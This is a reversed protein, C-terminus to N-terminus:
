QGGGVARGINFHSQGLTAAFSLYFRQAPRQRPKRHGIPETAATGGTEEMAATATATEM